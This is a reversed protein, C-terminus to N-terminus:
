RSRRTQHNPPHPPHPFHHKPIIESTLSKVFLQLNELRLAEASTTPQHSAARSSTPVIGNSTASGNIATSPVPHHSSEESSADIAAYALSVHQFRLMLHHRGGTKDPHLQMALRRYARRVERM